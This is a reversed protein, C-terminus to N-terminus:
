ADIDRPLFRTASHVCSDDKDWDADFSMQQSQMVYSFSLRKRVTLAVPGAENGYPLYVPLRMRTREKEHTHTGHEVAIYM